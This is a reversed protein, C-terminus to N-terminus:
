CCIEGVLKAAMMSRIRERRTARPNVVSSSEVWRPNSISVTSSQSVPQSAGSSIIRRGSELARKQSGSHSRVPERSPIVLILSAGSAGTSTICPTSIDPTPSRM